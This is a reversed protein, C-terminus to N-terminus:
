LKLFQKSAAVKHDLVIQAIYTGPKLDAVNRQILNQGHFLLTKEQYIIKGSLDVIYVRAQAAQKMEIQLTIDSNAPSPYLTFLHDFYPNEKIATSLGKVLYVSDVSAISTLSGDSAVVRHYVTVVDGSDVGLLSLLTDVAGFTTEFSTNEGTNIAIASSSFDPTTSLQWIYVVKNNNPDTSTEWQATFPMTLDGGIQITDGSGPAIFSTSAPALNVEPLVQGRIEGSTVTSSHINVYSNGGAIMMMVSDPLSVRNSDAPFVGSKLDSAIQSKLGVLIGGAMGPMGVHIHAGGGVNAAFDGTLTRFSGSSTFSTGNQEVLLTGVGTSENPLASNRGSLNAVYLNQTLPRFNGRIEGGGFNASHVNVYTMRSRVTDVWGQSVTFANESPRYIGNLPDLSTVVLDTIIGGNSGALGLHLHSGGRTQTALASSLNRFSGSIIAAAGTYELVAAGIAGTNIAPTQEAGSLPTYFYAVAEHLLQGRIEGGGVNESHVNVYGLRGRISDRRTNSIDFTNDVARFRGNNAEGDPTTNLGFGIPGNTGAPAFHIHAGGAVNVALPSSLNRFTGSATAKNGLIELIVAGDGPSVVAASQQSATLYANLFYQSEPVIQGRIEGGGYTLSHVNVYLARSMLAALTDGSITFINDAPQFIASRNDDGITMTLPFTIGGNRGAMGLHIHAGGAAAVNIDSELGTFSGAATLTNGELWLVLKGRAYTTVPPSQNAGSLNVRFKATAMPTLQGRIEGGGFRMSHVNVYWGGARLSSLQEDTVTFTNSDAPIEASLSDAALVVKLGQLIGGNRGAVAEHIHIGGATATALPSSLNSFSGSITVQNGTVEMVVSGRGDSMVSNTANSGFLNAAYYEDAEPLVQGRIEGSGYDVSHVNIYMRRETLAAKMDEDLIFTNSAVEFFGETLGDSLTPKLGLAIGGNMGAIATHIHAGGAVTTDVGSSIASLPGSVTLTDGSLTLTVDGSANSLVPFPEHNGSLIARYTQASLTGSIILFALITVFYNNIM